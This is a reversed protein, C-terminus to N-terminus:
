FSETLDIVRGLEDLTTQGRIVKIIGDEQMSPIGQYRAAKAIDRESPNARLALEIKEDMLIGEFIGIRGKYGIGDCEPCGVPEYLTGLEAAVLSRDVIGDAIKKILAFQEKTAAVKKKCATCLVRVLRQALAINISSGLVKESIGLDVLRPFTGAANNTHLTSFVLHGTLAAHIATEAVEKDRIEGVMIIDPDQRLASRLGEHFTYNKKDIQTQVIGDLHYEIPDEITIIKTEPKNVTKMFAYLATTKGSGTPGTTLIMGTPKNLETQLISLLKPEIGLSEMSISLSASNLIRMVVSEAYPGPLISTRIEIEAGKMKISFRGDQADSTINLKLGSLLKLRSLMLRYTEHDLTLIDNLVGDRRYRLRIVGSEEPELHIDSAKLKFAGALIIELIRTIRYTRKMAIAEKILTSIDPVSTVKELLSSVSDSSIEFVGAKSETAFSLDQYREWARKLSQESVMAISVDYGLDNLKSIVVKTKQEDPKRVAVKVKKGIRAFAAVEAEKAEVEPILRLADSSISVLSLDLYEVGYKASLIRALEEEEQKRLFDLRRDQETENFLPM